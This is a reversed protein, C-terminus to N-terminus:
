RRRKNGGFQDYKLNRVHVLCSRRHVRLKAEPNNPELLSFWFRTPPACLTEPSASAPFASYISSCPSHLEYAGTRGKVDSEPDDREMITMSEVPAPSAPPSRSQPANFFASPHSTLPPDFAPLKGLRHICSDDRSEIGEQRGPLTALYEPYYLSSATSHVSNTEAVAVNSM